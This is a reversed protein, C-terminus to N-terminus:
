RPSLVVIGIGRSRILTLLRSGEETELASFPEDAIIFKPTSLLARAIAVRQREGGSLIRNWDIGTAHLAARLGGHRMLAPSLDVDVAASEIAYLDACDSPYSLSQALTSGPGDCLYVRQPIIVIDRPLLPSPRSGGLGCLARVASSKGAGSRALVRVLGASKVAVSLPSGISLTDGSISALSDSPPTTAFRAGAGELVGFLEAV